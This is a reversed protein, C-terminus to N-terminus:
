IQGGEIKLMTQEFANDIIQNASVTGTRSAQLYGEFKQSFLTEPRLYEKMKSDNGWQKYKHTIVDYFDQLVYGEKFRALVPKKNKEASTKFNVGVTSNLYEIVNKVEFENIDENVNENVPLNSKAKGLPKGIPLALPKSKKGGMKGNERRSDVFRQRKVIEEVLRENFYNGNDDQSFKSLVDVSAKGLALSISKPSLPGKQHQLCLLTIYQGREEMTLDSVGTLFDNSYFLFAPDKAM